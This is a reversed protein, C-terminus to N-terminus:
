GKVTCTLNAKAGSLDAWWWTCRSHASYERQHTMSNTFFNASSQSFLVRFGPAELYTQIQTEGFGLYAKSSGGTISSRLGSYRYHGSQTEVQNAYTYSAAHAVPMATVAVVFAIVTWVGLRRTLHARSRNM